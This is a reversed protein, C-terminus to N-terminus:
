SSSCLLSNVKWGGDERQMPITCTPYGARQCHVIARDGEYSVAVIKTEPLSERAKEAEKGKGATSALIEGCNKDEFQGPSSALQQAESRISSSLTSCVGEWDGDASAQFYASLTSAIGADVPTFPRKDPPAAPPPTGHSAATPPPSAAKGGAPQTTVSSSTTTDPSEGQTSATATTQGTTSDGGGCAALSVSVALATLLILFRRMTALL